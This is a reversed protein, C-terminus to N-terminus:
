GVRCRGRDGGYEWGALGEELGGRDGGVGVRVVRRVGEWWGVRM